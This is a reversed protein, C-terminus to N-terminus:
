KGALIKGSQPYNNIISVLDQITIDNFLKQIFCLEAYGSQLPAFNSILQGYGTRIILDIKDKIWLYDAFDEPNEALKIANQIELWPNYGILLYVKKNGPRNFESTSKCLGDISDVFYEPLGDFIGALIIACQWKKAFAPFLERCLYDEAKFVADLDTQSRSLNEKSLGYISIINIGNSFAEDMLTLLKEMALRYAEFYSLNNQRAWRRSGDPILGLHNVLSNAM